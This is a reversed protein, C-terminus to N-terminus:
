PELSGDALDAFVAPAADTLFVVSASGATGVRAPVVRNIIGTAPTDIALAAFALLRGWGLDTVLWPQSAAFLEPLELPGQAQVKALAGLLVLGGHLQRTLDGGALTKRARSFALAQTGDLEQRGAELDAKAAADRIAQPVEVEARGLASDWLNVFGEFGTLVVGEIELGSVERLTEVMLDPGGISLAANIKNNGRQDVPVWSDRPIGLLGGAGSGDLGVLHLSDARSNAADQGPRADSGVVAVLKPVPGYWGEALGLSPLRAAVIKFGSGSDVGYIVDQGVEAVALTAGDVQATSAM